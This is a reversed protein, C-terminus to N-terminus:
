VGEAAVDSKGGIQLTHKKRRQNSDAKHLIHLSGAVPFPPLCSSIDTFESLEGEWSNNRVKEEAKGMEKTM